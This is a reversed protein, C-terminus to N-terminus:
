FGRFGPITQFYAHLLIGEELISDVEVRAYHSGDVYFFFFREKGAKIGKNWRPQMTKMSDNNCHLSWNADEEKYPGAIISTDLDPNPTSNQGTRATPSLFHLLSTDIISSDQDCLYIDWDHVTDDVSYISFNGDEDWGFASPDGTSREYIIQPSDTTRPLSSISATDGVYGQDYVTKVPYVFYTGCGRDEIKSDLVLDGPRDCFYPCLVKCLAMTDIKGSAWIDIFHVYYGEAEPVEDWELKLGLGGDIAKIRLNGPAGLNPEEPVQTCGIMLLLFASSVLLKKM